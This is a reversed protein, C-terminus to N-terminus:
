FNVQASNFLNFEVVRNNEVIDFARNFIHLGLEPDILNRLIKNKSHDIKVGRLNFGYRGNAGTQQDLPKEKKLKKFPIKFNSWFLHRGLKTTPPILPTYYPIVNEICWKGKYWNNSLLIIEQYLKMDPYRPKQQGDTNIRSHSPCPPSAWIFDWGDQLHKLLYEHADRVIINDDPYKKKYLDAIEPNIEVATVECNNWLKRNGGLGAYLNLVKM